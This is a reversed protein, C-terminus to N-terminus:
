PARLFAFSHSLALGAVCSALLVSAWFAFQDWAHSQSGEYATTLYVRGQCVVPSSCGEGPIPTKWLVKLSNSGAAPPLNTASTIGQGHPGRWQPWDQAHACEGAGLVIMVALAVCRHSRAHRSRRLRIQFM